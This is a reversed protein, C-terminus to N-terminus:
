PPSNPRSPPHSSPTTDSVSQPPSSQRHPSSSEPPKTLHISLTLLPHSIHSLPPYRDQPLESSSNFIAEFLASRDEVRVSGNCVMISILIIGCGTRLCVGEYFEYCMGDNKLLLFIM